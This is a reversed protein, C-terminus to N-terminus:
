LRQLQEVACPARCVPCSRASLMWHEAALHSVVHGCPTIAVTASTLPEMIIPCDEHKALADMIALRAIHKPLVSVPPPASPGPTVVWSDLFNESARQLSTMVHNNVMTPMRHAQFKVVKGLKVHMVSHRPLENINVSPLAIKKIFPIKTTFESCKLYVGDYQIRLNGRFYNRVLIGSPGFFNDIGSHTTVIGLVDNPNEVVDFRVQYDDKKFELLVASYCTDEIPLDRTRKSEDEEIYMATYKPPEGYFTMTNTCEAGQLRRALKKHPINTNMM